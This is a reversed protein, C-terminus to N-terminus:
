IMTFESVEVLCAIMAAKEKIGYDEMDLFSLFVNLYVLRDNLGPLCGFWL